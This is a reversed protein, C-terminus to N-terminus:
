TTIENLEPIFDFINENRIEDLQKTKEWFTNLYKTNNVDLFNIASIFGNTARQLDDHGELWKIHEKYKKIIKEKYHNPAIDIRYHMPYQLININLDQPNILGKEVWDKHFDTIHMANMISLTPSIYFDVEPCQEIMDIRNKEITSWVTGTRIYEAHPGMADLSAGVSVHKFHKWLDFVHQGKYNLKM